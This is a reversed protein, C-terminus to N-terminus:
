DGDDDEEVNVDGFHQKMIDEMVRKDQTEEAVMEDWRAQDRIPLISKAIIDEMEDPTFVDLEWSEYGHLDVYSGPIISGDARVGARSDSLKAPNHPYGGEEIQDKNLAIRQVYVPQGVFTSVTERVHRTMDIGSPDHDGLYFIIPRQGKHIYNLFRQGAAWTETVSSYGGTAFFDVRLKNCIDSITGELSRKEIWVEPRWDQNAWLDLAYRRMMRAIAQPPGDVSNIGKLSRNRDEFATWSMVGAMRADTMIGVMRQYETARNRIINMQVLQYYIQRVSVRQGRAEYPQIIANIREILATHEKTFRKPEYCLFTGTDHNM